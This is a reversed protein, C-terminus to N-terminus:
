AGQFGYNPNLRRLQWESFLVRAAPSGHPCKSCGHPDRDRTVAILFEIDAALNTVGFRPGWELARADAEFETWPHPMTGLRGERYQECHALEHLLVLMVADRSEWGEYIVAVTNGTFFGNFRGKLRVVNAGCGTARAM